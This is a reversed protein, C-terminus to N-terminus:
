TITPRRLLLFLPVISFQSFLIHLSIDPGSPLFLATITPTSLAPFRLCQEPNCWSGAVPKTKDQTTSVDENM